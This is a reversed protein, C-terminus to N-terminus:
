LWCLLLLIDDNLLLLLGLPQLRILLTRTEAGRVGYNCRVRLQAYLLPRFLISILPVSLMCCVGFNFFAVAFYFEANDVIIIGAFRGNNEGPELYYELFLQRLHWLIIDGPQNIIPRM